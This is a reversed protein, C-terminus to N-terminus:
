DHGGGEGLVSRLAQLGRRIHSKVTGLAMGTRAAIEPHSLGEFFALAIMRRQEQSLSGLARAVASRADFSALLRADPDYEECPTYTAPAEEPHAVLHKRHARDRRLRDVARSWAIRQLWALVEGRQIDYQGAREWVQQFVECAVEEADQAHRLVRLATGYVADITRDYLEGLAAQDRECVRVVLRVLRVSEDITELSPTPSPM